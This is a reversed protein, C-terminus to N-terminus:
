LFSFSRPSPLYVNSASHYEFSSCSDSLQVFFIITILHRLINIMLILLLYCLIPFFNDAYIFDDAVDIVVVDAFLLCLFLQSRYCTSSLERALKPIHGKLNHIPFFHSGYLIWGIWIYLWCMEDTNACNKYETSQAKGNWSIDHLVLCQLNCLWCILLNKNENQSRERKKDRFKIISLM